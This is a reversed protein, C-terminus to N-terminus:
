GVDSRFQPEGSVACVVFSGVATPRRCINRVLRCPMYMPFNMPPVIMRFDLDEIFIFILLNPLWSAQQQESFFDPRSGPTCQDRLSAKSLSLTMEYGSASLTSAFQYLGSPYSLLQSCFGTQHSARGISCVWLSVHVISRM